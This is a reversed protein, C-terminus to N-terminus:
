GHLYMQGDISTDYWGLVSKTAPVAFGKIQKFNVQRSEVLWRSQPTGASGGESCWHCYSIDFDPWQWPANCPTRTDESTHGLTVCVYATLRARKVLCDFTCPIQLGKTHM